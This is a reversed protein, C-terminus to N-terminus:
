RRDKRYLIVGHDFNEVLALGAAKGVAAYDQGQSFNGLAFEYAGSAGADVLLHPAVAYQAAFYVAKGADTDIRVDSIYGLTVNSPVRKLLPAMREATARIDYPDKTQQNLARTVNYSTLGGFVAITGAAFAALVVGVPFSARSPAADPM